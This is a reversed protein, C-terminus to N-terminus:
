FKPNQHQDFKWCSRWLWCNLPFTAQFSHHGRKFNIILYYKRDWPIQFRLPAPRQESHSYLFSVVITKPKVYSHIFNTMSKSCTLYKRWTHWDGGGIFNVAITYSFNQQFLTIREEYLLILQSSNGGKEHWNLTACLVPLRFRM